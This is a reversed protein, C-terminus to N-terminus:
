RNLKKIRSDTHYCWKCGSTPSIDQRKHIYQLYPHCLSCSTIHGHYNTFDIQNIAILGAKTISNELLPTKIIVNNILINFLRVVPCHQPWYHPLIQLMEFTCFQHSLSTSIENFRTWIQLEQWTKCTLIWSWSYFQVDTWFLSVKEHFQTKEHDKHNRTRLPPWLLIFIKFLYM